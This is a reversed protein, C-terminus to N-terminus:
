DGPPRVRAKPFAYESSEAHLHVASRYKQVFRIGPRAAQNHHRLFNPGLQRVRTWAAVQGELRTERIPPAVSFLM